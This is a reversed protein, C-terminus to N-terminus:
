TDDYNNGFIFKFSLISFHNLKSQLQILSFEQDLKVHNDYTAWYRNRRSMRYVLNLFLLLTISQELSLMKCNVVTKEM